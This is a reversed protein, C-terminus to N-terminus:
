KPSPQTTSATPILGILSAPRTNYKATVEVWTQAPPAPNTLPRLSTQALLPTKDRAQLHLIATEALRVAAREDAMRLSAQHMRSLSVALVASLTVVVALAVIVDLTLFASRQRPASPPHFTSPLPLIRNNV